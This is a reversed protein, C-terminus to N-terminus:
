LLHALAEASRPASRHMHAEQWPAKRPGEPQLECRVARPQRASMHSRGRGGAGGLAQAAKRRRRGQQRALRRDLGGRGSGATPGVGQHKPLACVLAPRQSRCGVSLAATFRPARHSGQGSFLVWPRPAPPCGCLYLSLARSAPLLAPRPTPPAAQARRAQDM